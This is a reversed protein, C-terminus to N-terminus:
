QAPAGADLGAGAALVAVQVPRVRGHEIVFGRGPQFDARRVRGLRERFPSQTEDADPQLSLGWGPQRLATFLDWIQGGSGQEFEVLVLVAARRAARALAVLLPYAATGEADAPRELVIVGRAGPRPFAGDAPGPAAPDPPGPAPAPADPPPALRSAAPEGRPEGLPGGSPGGSPGGIPGGIPGAIPGGIPEAGAAPVPARGPRGGISGLLGPLFALLEEEGVAVRDWGPRARLGTGSFTLLAAEVPEGRAAGQRRLAAVITAAATSLGSGPPGAIVALGAEPLGVPELTRSDIGFVARGGAEAPLGALPVAAPANGIRPAAAVGEALLQTALEDLAAAQARLEAAGGLVGFQIQRSEGALIARGPPAEELADASVGLAAAEHPNALRLVYQQQLTASLAATVASVRDSTLVVHVGVARGAMMIEGLRALPAEPGAETETAQRFAALGDLLLVLRPEETRGTAARYAPLTAARAAAFRPGREAIAESLHRLVRSVLEPDALPAVAGVTPLQAIADLAGGAADIGYLRVPSRGARASLAAAVTFLASTKGTGGAGFVAANGVEDLDCSAPRQAQAAPDDLLGIPLGEGADGALDAEALDALDLREPLEDLWPRRPPALGATAAAAVIGDRLAEIDRAASAAAASRPEPPVDWQPGEALGLSRLQVEGAPTDGRSRGGLYGTQFHAIRGAGVKLAGRGPTAADFHAADPVGLVDSSDADDAMRLGIRLNTNARLNDRIVGAPRQTALILHLGLSRGRQAIDVVGDVFEPVERALAAFEDIVIVLVPPASRDSRREMTILDKAGHEALLEERHQLEARLSVLARRVLHPSLDTVLGVTHPLDVCEAFAAGGKYDVLLFTLREPSVTAALSMIWTQLFESKGAGTTGGVLAHPGQARLDLVAPGDPGQGVVARLAVPDRERGPVWDAMLTESDRWGHLVSRAGGLLDISHLERLDVHRPLDSEDLVRAASDEVPALARALARAEAPEAFEVASLPVTTGTRVFHVRSHSRSVEALTRCAAPPASAEGSVWILHIGRDPGDEALAILRSTEVLQDDLVLVIVAPTDPPETVADNRAADNRTAEDLHSRLQARRGRRGREESLAELAILLRTAGPETDALQGVPLPGGVPDAHPFWKLWGWRDEQHPGAFCALVLEAPSHLGTLQLILSRAMGDARDPAGSIGISGCRDFRELVPVPAVERFEEAVALLVDWHDRGVDGRDPLKVETRSPLRGEGLRVELFARHEPRRAWLLGSRRRIADRVDALRPTEAGRVRIEQERLQNLEAREADTTARFRALERRFARKGGLTGDLWSGVMMLPSFAIMLLSMPSNTIAYMAGGMMMPALMALLPVRPPTAPSPPQPLDRTAGTFRPDVRPTRTFLERHTLRPQHQPPGPTIRLLVDGLLVDTPRRLTESRVDRGGIRTGNRSGQDTITLHPAADILAHRRSVTADDLYVRSTPSRGIENPGATLSYRVGTQPGTLVDVTGVSPTLRRLHAAEGELVPEITWGSQLGSETIPTAPDLLVREASDAPSGSLTVPAHRSAAIETLHPSASIGARILARAADSVTATVDCALTIDHHPGTPLAVSLRLKM